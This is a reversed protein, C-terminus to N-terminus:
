EGEKPDDDDDDNIFEFGSQEYYWTMDEDGEGEDHFVQIMIDIAEPDGPSLGMSECLDTFDSM